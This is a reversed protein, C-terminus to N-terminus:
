LWAEGLVDILKPLTMVCQIPRTLIHSLANLIIYFSYPGGPSTEHGMAHIMCSGRGNGYDPLFSHYHYAREWDFRISAYSETPRM